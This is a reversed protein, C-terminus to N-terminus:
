NMRIRLAYTGPSHPPLRPSKRKKPTKPSDGGNSGGSLANAQERLVPAVRKLIDLNMETNELLAKSTEEAALITDMHAQVHNLMAARLNVDFYPTKEYVGAAIELVADPDTVAQLRSAFVDM